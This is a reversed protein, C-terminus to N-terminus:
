DSVSSFHITTGIRERRVSTHIETKLKIGASAKVLSVVFVVGCCEASEVLFVFGPM